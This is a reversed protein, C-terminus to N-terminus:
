ENIEERGQGIVKLDELTELIKSKLKENKKRMKEICKNKEFIVEDKESVIIQLSIQEQDKGALNTHLSERERELSEINSELNDVKSKLATIEERGQGIVKLDELIITNNEEQLRQVTNKLEHIKTEAEKCTENLQRIKISQKDRSAKESVDNQSLAAELEKIKAAKSKVQKDTEKM